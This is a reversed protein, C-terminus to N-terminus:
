GDKLSPVIASMNESYKNINLANQGSIQLLLKRLGDLILSDEAEKRFDSKLIAIKPKVRKRLESWIKNIVADSEKDQRTCPGGKHLMSPRGCQGCKDSWDDLSVLAAIKKKLDNNSLTDFDIVFM